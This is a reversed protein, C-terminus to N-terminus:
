QATELEAVKTDYFSDALLGEEYLFKLQRMRGTIQQKTFKPKAVAAGSTPGTGAAAPAAAEAAVTRITAALPARVPVVRKPVPQYNRDYVLLALDNAPALHRWLFAQMRDEAAVAERVIEEDGVKTSGVISLRVPGETPTSGAKIAFRTTMQAGTLTIPTATVGAPPNKLMVKIPGAFGDKRVAYLTVGSSSNTAFSVSSPVVRLEFDPQPASVRLRYGYEAGGKRATDGIHVHYIGDAPLKLLLYSDAHHTNLASMADERDDNFAILKGAANTIKIVADLPSDLRRAQVEVVVRDNAQGSFQFVDWDDPTGIRGNVVVPLAIKQATAEANNSERDFADPLRDLVFPVPNSRYGLRYAALSQAGPASGRPASLDADQVNLGNMSPPLAVGAQGGLPFISTVFPMDGVTIRYVFDERGRYLSDHIEFVYEGDQPIDYLIVPDPQFRYDDAYALERGQADYLALVPQFWGPVADAIYPILQRAQTSIVLRQGKSAQLRYRNVEGSAIQGNVTCPISIRREAEGAPRQRLATAEKGLVQITATLMPDRAYELFQGVQFALPNSVGRPTVLRLERQGLEAEPSITVEVIAISSISACAPNQVWERLRKEIRPVLAPGPANGASGAMMAGEAMTASTSRSSAAAQKLGKLQERLLQIEQNNLRRFYDVVRASVGSGSVLVANVEDLDQGGLKIQFTMGLQGGAPYTYGIYPRRQAWAAPALAVLGALVALLRFIEAAPAERHSRHPNFRRAVRRAANAIRSTSSVPYVNRAANM